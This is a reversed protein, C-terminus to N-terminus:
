DCTCIYPLRFGQTDEEVKRIWSISVYRLIRIAFNVRWFIATSHDETATDSYHSDCGFRLIIKFSRGGACAPPKQSRQHQFKALAMWKPVSYSSVKLSFILM